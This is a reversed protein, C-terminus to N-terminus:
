RLESWYEQERARYDQWLGEALEWNAAAIADRLQWLREALEHTKAM